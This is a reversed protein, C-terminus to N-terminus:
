NNASTNNLKRRLGINIHRVLHKIYVDQYEYSSDSGNLYRLSIWKESTTLVFVACLRPAQCSIKLLAPEPPLLGLVFIYCEGSLNIDIMFGSQCSLRPSSFYNSVLNVSDSCM